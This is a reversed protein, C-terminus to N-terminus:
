ENLFKEIIKVTEEPHNLIVVHNAGEILELKSNPIQEQMQKSVHHPFISDKTGVILLTPTKIKSLKHAIDLNVSQKSTLLYSGWSNYFITRALGYAEYDRHVKGKPYPSHWKGVAPPSMFSALNIVANALTKLPKFKLYPPASHGGSIIILKELRDPRELAFHAAIVAGYSHGILIVKSIKEADLIKEIDSVINSIEYQSAGRPHSSYGHGRLDMSIAGFNKDILPTRVFQWADADGGAGHVFFLISKGEALGHTEYYIELGDHTRITKHSIGIMKNVM